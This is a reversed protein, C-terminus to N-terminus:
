VFINKWHMKAFEIQGDIKKIRLSRPLHQPKVGDGERTKYIEKRQTFSLPSYSIPKKFITIICLKSNNKIFIQIRAAVPYRAFRAPDIKHELYSGSLGSVALKCCNPFFDPFRYKTKLQRQPAVHLLISPREM